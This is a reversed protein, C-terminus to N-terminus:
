PWAALGSQAAQAQATCPLHCIGTGLVGGDRVLAVLRRGVQLVDYVVVVVQWLGDQEGMAM